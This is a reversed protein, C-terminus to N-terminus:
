IGLRYRYIGSARAVPPILRLWRFAKLPTEEDDYYYWGELLRISGALTSGSGWSEVEKGDNLSWHMRAQAKVFALHLNNAWIGFPTHADCVLECGPFHESLKLFLSQVQAEEFYPLVAAAFFLFPRPKFRSVEELWGDELVSAALLHYRSSESHILKGRLVIVEPLDLDFWEVRGAEPQDCGVREFPTDLGCGIHVVVADPNRQLFDRVSSDFKNIRAIIALEDHRRMKLRSFDCDIQNVMAVARADKLLGDPRQTECARVYLPILLTESIGELSQRIKESMSM